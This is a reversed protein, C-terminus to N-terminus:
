RNYNISYNNLPIIKRKILGLYDFRLQPHLKPILACNEENRKSITFQKPRHHPALYVYILPRCSFYYDGFTASSDLDLGAIQCQREGFVERLTQDLFVCEYSVEEEESISHV